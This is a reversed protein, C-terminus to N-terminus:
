SRVSTKMIKIGVLTENKILDKLYRKTEEPSLKDIKKLVDHIFDKKYKEEALKKIVTDIKQKHFYWEYILAGIESILLERVEDIDKILMEYEGSIFEMFVKNCYNKDKIKNFIDNKSIFEIADSIKADSVTAYGANIIDFIEKAESLHSNFFCLIPIRNEQSWKVPSDYGSISKWLEILQNYKQAKEYSDSIQILNSIFSDFTMGISDSELKNFIKRIDEDSFKYKFKKRFCEIFVKDQSTYFELFKDGFNNIENILDTENIEKFSHTKYVNILSIIIKSLIPVYEKFFDFQMKISSIRNVISIVADELKKVPQPIIKNIADILVYDLYVFNIQNKAELEEWLWSAFISLNSKILEVYRLDDGIKQAIEAMDHNNENIFYQFGIKLNSINYEGELYEKLGSDSDFLDVVEEAIQTENKREENTGAAFKCYSNIIPSITEYLGFKDNNKIYYKLSWLPFGDSSLKDKIGIMVDQISNQKQSPLKFISGSYKCFREQKETMKIISLTDANKLGKIIGHIMDALEVATLPTPYSIYDKKYYGCDAYEKMIFGFIFASGTCSLLGFPKDKLLSWIDSIGISSNADISNVILLDVAQKMKSVPHDPMSTTYEKNDWINERILKEKWVDLYKYNAPIQKKNMGMVPVDSSFSTKFINENSVMSEISASFIKNNLESLKKGFQEVGSITVPSYYNSYITINEDNLEKKWTRILEEAERLKLSAQGLDIKEFYSYLAALRIFEDYNKNSFPRNSLDVMILNSINESQLLKIAEFNKAQDEENKSFIFVLLIVNKEFSNISNIKSKLDKYTACEMKFRLPFYGSLSFSGLLDYEPNGILKEFAFNAKAWAEKEKFKEEDINQSQTIYLYDNYDGGAGKIGEGISGFISKKLFKDMITRVNDALNTGAFAFTINKLTPRMLNGIGRGKEGKLASLMLAVKLVRKENENECQKEYTYYYNIFNKANEDFDDNDYHFFYDWIYDSTMYSWDAVNNNHLFWRFNNKSSASANPDGCLFQFMTRQNSNVERSINQLLFAAFPHLPLIGKLDDSKIDEAYIELSNKFMKEVNYWLGTRISIWEDKFDTEIDIANKMLMFATTPVMDIKNMKFRAELIKRRDNDFIFQDHRRHTILIFYFPIDFSAQALEQLGDISERNRLFYGSFEDWIFVIKINNKDIVDRLWGIIESESQTFNFNDNDAVEIITQLLDLSGEPGLHELDKVVDETSSYETFKNKNRMFAGKFNFAADSDKIIGIIKDYLTRGGIYFYSKDKLSKKISESVASFLQNNGVISGSSSRNVVIIKNHKKISELRNFLATSIKYKEFYSKVIDIDDEIIHKLTFSAFSKGTGYAGSIWISKRKEITDGELSGILDSLITKFTDHPYFSLWHSPYKKDATADFVPVFNKNVKIYDSYPRPM